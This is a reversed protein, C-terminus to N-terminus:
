LEILWLDFTGSMNSIYAIKRGDPNWCPSFDQSDSFTLRKKGSGDANIIWIDLNGSANSTFVIKTSDPSWEPAWNFNRDFTLRKLDGTKIDLAYIDFKDPKDGLKRSSFVIKSGDPSIRPVTDFSTNSTLRIETLNMFREPASGALNKPSSSHLCGSILILFLFLLPLYSFVSTGTSGTGM